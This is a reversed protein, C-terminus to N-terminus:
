LKDLIKANTQNIRCAEEKRNWENLTRYGYQASRAPRGNEDFGKQPPRERQEDVYLSYNLSLRCNWVRSVTFIKYIRGLLQENRM